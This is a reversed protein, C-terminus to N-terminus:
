SERWSRPYTGRPMIVRVTKAAIGHNQELIQETSLLARALAVAEGKMTMVVLPTGAVMESDLKVVGPIALDAGHCIADVASDRIHIKPIFEFAEEVPRVVLRMRTEDKRTRRDEQADLLDYM